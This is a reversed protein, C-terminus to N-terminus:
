LHGVNALSIANLREPGLATRLLKVAQKSGSYHHGAGEGEEKIRQVDRLNIDPPFNYASLLQKWVESDRYGSDTELSHAALILGHLKTDVDNLPWRADTQAMYSNFEFMSVARLCEESMHAYNSSVKMIYGPGNELTTREFKIVANDGPKPEYYGGPVVKGTDNRPETLEGYLCLRNITQAGMHPKIGALADPSHTPPQPTFERSTDEKVNFTNFEVHKDFIDAQGDHDRDLVRRRLMTDCPFLYNNDMAHYAANPQIVEDRVERAITTWPRRESIQDVMTMLADEDESWTMNAEDPGFYSSNYTTITQAEPFKDRIMNLEGKGACLGLFVVKGDGDGTARSRDLSSRVSRGWDAHGSYVVMHTKPDDINKFIDGGYEVRKRIRFETEVGDRNKTKKVYVKPDQPDAKFGHRAWIKEQGAFGGGVAVDINVVNNSNAFWKEYPPELPALERMLTNVESQMESTLKDKSLNANFIMSERLLPSTEARALGAYREFAQKKLALEDGSNGLSTILEHLVTASSSRIQNAQVADMGQPPQGGAPVHELTDVLNAFVNRKTDLSVGGATFLNTKFDDIVSAARFLGDGQAALTQPGQQNLDAAFAGDATLFVQRYGPLPQLNATGPPLEGDATLRAAKLEPEIQGAAPQAAQFIGLVDGAGAAPAVDAAPTGPQAIGLFDELVKRGDVTFKDAHQTLAAALADREKDTVRGGDKASSILKRAEDGNIKRDGTSIFRQTLSNIQRSM